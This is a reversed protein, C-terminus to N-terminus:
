KEAYDQIYSDKIWWLQLEHLSSVFSYARSFGIYRKFNVAFLNCIVFIYLRLLQYFIENQM